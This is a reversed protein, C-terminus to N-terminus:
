FDLFFSEQSSSSSTKLALECRIGSLNQIMAGLSAKIALCDEELNVSEKRKDLPLYSFQLGIGNQNFISKVSKLELTKLKKQYIKLFDKELFLKEQLSEIEKSAEIKFFPDGLTLKKAIDLKLYSLEKSKEKLAEKVWDEYSKKM